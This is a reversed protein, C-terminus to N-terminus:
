TCARLAPAPTEAPAPPSWWVWARSVLPMVSSSAVIADRRAWNSGAARHNASLAAVISCVVRCSRNVSAASLGTSSMSASTRRAPDSADGRYTTSISAAPSSAVAVGAAARHSTSITSLPPERAPRWPASTPWEMPPRAAHATATAGFSERVTIGIPPSAELVDNTTRPAARPRWDCIVRM